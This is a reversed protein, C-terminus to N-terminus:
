PRSDADGEPEDASAPAPTEHRPGADENADPDAQPAESQAAAAEPAEAEAAPEATGPERAVTTGGGAAAGVGVAAGAAEQAPRPAPERGPIDLGGTSVGIRPEPDEEKEVSQRATRTYRPREEDDELAIETNISRKLETTARRFEGMAKGLTRGIEPLKRPGFILLALVLIFLVEPLGLPGFM